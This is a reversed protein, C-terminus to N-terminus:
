ETDHLSFAHEGGQTKGELAEIINADLASLDSPTGADILQATKPCHLAWAFM